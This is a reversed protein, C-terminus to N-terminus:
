PASVSNAPQQQYWRYLHAGLLVSCVLLSLSVSIQWSSMQEMGQGMLAFTLMQPVYGLASASVFARGRITSAGAVINTIANSGVPLLRIALTTSYPKAALLPHLKAIVRPFRRNVWDQLFYRSLIFTIACALAAMATAILTGASVGLLGGGVFAVIQRPFGVLMLTIGSVLLLVWGWQGQVRLWHEIAVPDAYHGLSAVKFILAIVACALLPKVAARISTLLRNKGANNNM